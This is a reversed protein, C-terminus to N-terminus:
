GHTTASQALNFERAQERAMRLPVDLRTSQNTFALHGEHRGARPQTLNGRVAVRHVVV